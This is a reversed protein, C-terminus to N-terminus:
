HRAPKSSHFGIVRHWTVAKNITPDIPKKQCKPCVYSRAFQVIQQGATLEVSFTEGCSQCRLTWLGADM